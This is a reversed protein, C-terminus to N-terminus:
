LRREERDLWPQLLTRLRAAYTHTKVRRRGESAITALREPDALLSHVAERAEGPDSVLVAGDSGFLREHDPTRTAVMATGAAPVEFTRMNHAPVNWDALINLGIASRWYLRCTEDGPFSKDSVLGALPGRRTARTWGRGSVFLDFEALAEAHRL